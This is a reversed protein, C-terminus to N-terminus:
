DNIENLLQPLERRLAKKFSTNNCYGFFSNNIFSLSKGNAISEKIDEEYTHYTAKARSLKKVETDINVKRYFQSLDVKFKNEKIKLFHNCFADGYAVKINYLHLDEEYTKFHNLITTRDRKAIMAATKVSDSARHNKIRDALTYCFIIFPCLDENSRSKPILTDVDFYDMVENAISLVEPSKLNIDVLSEEHNLGSQRLDHYIELEKESYNKKFM